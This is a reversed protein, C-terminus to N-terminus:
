TCSDAAEVNEVGGGEWVGADWRVGVVWGEVGLGGGWGVAGVKIEDAVM